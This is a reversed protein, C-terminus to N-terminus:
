EGLMYRFLGKKFANQIRDSSVAWDTVEQKTDSHIAQEEILGNRCRWAWMYLYLTLTGDANTRRAYKDDTFVIKESIEGRVPPLEFIVKM